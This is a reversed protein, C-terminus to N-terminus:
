QSFIEEEDMLFREVNKNSKRIGCYYCDKMCINSCEIIGRFYAVKGVYQEKIFYAYDFLAQLEDADTISLLAVLEDVSLVEGQKARNLIKEVMKVETKEVVSYVSCM